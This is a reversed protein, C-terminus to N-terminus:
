SGRRGPPSPPCPSRTRGTGRGAAPGTARPVAPWDWATHGGRSAGARGPNSTPRPIEIQAALAAFSSLDRDHRLSPLLAVGGPALPERSVLAQLIRLASGARPCDWRRLCSGRERPHFASRRPNAWRRAPLPSASSPPRAPTDLAPDAGHSLLRFRLLTPAQFLGGLDFAHRLDVLVLAPGEDGAM